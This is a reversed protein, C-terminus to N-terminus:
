AGASVSPEPNAEGPLSVSHPPAPIPHAPAGSGGNGLVPSGAATPHNRTRRAHRNTSTVKCPSPLFEDDSPVSLWGTNQEKVAHYRIRFQHHEVSKGGTTSNNSGASSASSAIKAVYLM